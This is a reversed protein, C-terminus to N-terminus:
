IDYCLLPIMVQEWSRTKNNLDIFCLSQLRIYPVFSSKFSHFFEALELAEGCIM